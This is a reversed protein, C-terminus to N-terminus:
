KEKLYEELVPKLGQKVPLQWVLKCWDHNGEILQPGKNTIAVDWGISRNDTNSAAASKVMDIVEQWYPLRFGVIQAGTIPHFEHDPRTIDSYVAPGSVVGTHLDVPAAINGAALNDVSSNVTIRLRAGIIIVQGQKDLQTIVRVTNLGAPSLSMLEDHQVVFEEVMDNGSAVLAKILDDVSLDKSSVVEIGRGCQGDARKLVVKGSPNRLIEEARTRNRRAEDLTLFQHGVFRNYVQHFRVKDALAERTNPPNMKRQYEYMFGTGAYNNREAPELNYMRFQFYELLSVNYRMSSSIMDVWLGLWTRGTEISAHRTFRLLKKVDLEKVYYGLYLIRRM